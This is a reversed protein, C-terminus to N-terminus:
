RVNIELAALVTADALLGIPLNVRTVTERQAEPGALSVDITRANAASWERVVAVPLDAKWRREGEVPVVHGNISVIATPDDRYGAVRLCSEAGCRVLKASPEPAAIAPSALSGLLLAGALALARQHFRRGKGNRDM